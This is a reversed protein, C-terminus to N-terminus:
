QTMFRWAMGAGAMFIRKRSVLRRPERVVSVEAERPLAQVQGLRCYGATIWCISCSNPNRINSSLPAFHRKVGFPSPKTASAWLDHAPIFGKILRWRGAM